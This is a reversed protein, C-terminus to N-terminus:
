EEAGGAGPKGAGGSAGVGGRLAPALFSKLKEEIIRPNEGAQISLMGEVMVTRFLIEEKSIDKLKSALPNFLFNALICGYFTTILAISMMPGLTDPDNLDGLMLILGIMTGMMGWSPAYTALNEFFAAIGNHREETYGLETEMIGKVLEPDTGDVILMIGKKLFQDGMNSASEELALVGEKRATNALQVVTDIAAAPDLVPPKFTVGVAKFSSIFNNLKVGILGSAITGGVVIMGSPAHLFAWLGSIEGGGTILISAVIFVVGLLLGVLTGLEL